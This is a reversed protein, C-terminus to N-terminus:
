KAGELGRIGSNLPFSRLSIEIGIQFDGGQLLSVASSYKLVSFSCEGAMVAHIRIIMIIEYSPLLSPYGPIREIWDM